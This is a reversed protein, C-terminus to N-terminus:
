SNKFASERKWLKGKTGDKKARKEKGENGVLRPLNRGTLLSNNRWSDGLSQEYHTM